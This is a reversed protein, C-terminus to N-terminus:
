LQNTIKIIITVVLFVGTIWDALKIEKNLKWSGILLLAGFLILGGGAILGFLDTIPNMLFILILATELTSFIFHLKGGNNLRHSRKHYFLSRFKGTFNENSWMKHAILNLIYSTIFAVVFDRQNFQITFIVFFNFIALFYDGHYLAWHKRLILTLNDKRAFHQQLKGEITPLMGFIFATIITFM